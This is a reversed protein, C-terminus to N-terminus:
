KERENGVWQITLMKYLKQVNCQWCVGHGRATLTVYSRSILLWMRKVRAYLKLLNARTEKYIINKKPKQKRYKRVGCKLRAWPPEYVSGEDLRRVTDQSSEVTPNGGLRGRDCPRENKKDGGMRIERVPNCMSCTVRWSEKLTDPLSLGVTPGPWEGWNFGDCRPPMVGVSGM